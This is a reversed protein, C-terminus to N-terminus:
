LRLASENLAPGWLLWQGDLRQESSRYEFHEYNAAVSSSYGWPDSSLSTLSQPRHLMASKKNGGANTSLGIALATLMPISSTSVSAVLRLTTPGSRNFSSSHASPTPDESGFNDTLKDPGKNLALSGDVGFSLNM